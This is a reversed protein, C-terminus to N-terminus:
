EISGDTGANHSNTSAEAASRTAATRATEPTSATQGAESPAVEEDKTTMHDSSVAEVCPGGSIKGQPLLLHDSEDGFPWL